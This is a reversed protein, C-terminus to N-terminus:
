ISPPYREACVMSDGCLQAFTQLLLTQRRRDPPGALIREGKRRKTVAVTHGGKPCESGQKWVGWSVGAPPCGEKWATCERPHSLLCCVRRQGLWTGLAGAERGAQMWRAQVGVLLVLLLPFGQPGSQWPATVAKENPRLTRGPDKHSPSSTAPGKYVKQQLSIKECSKRENQNVDGNEAQLNPRTCDTRKLHTFSFDNVGSSVERVKICLIRACCSLLLVPLMPMEKNRRQNLLITEYLLLADGTHGTQFHLHIRFPPFFCDRM